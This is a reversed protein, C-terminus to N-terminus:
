SQPQRGGDRTPGGGVIRRTTRVARGHEDARRLVLTQGATAILRREASWLRAALHAFGHNIAELTVDLLVWGEANRSVLRLTNDLSNGLVPRDLADALALVSLDAIIALEGVGVTSELPGSLVRCWFASRGAGVVAPRVDLHDTISGTGRSPFDYRALDDPAPVDPPAVWVGAADFARTGLAGLAAVVVEGGLSISCAAQSTKTGDIAVDVVIDLAGEPGAHRLFHATGWVLPRGTALQLAELAAGFATGGQIAGSATLLRPVLRLRWHAPDGTAELDLFV